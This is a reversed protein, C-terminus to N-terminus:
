GEDIAITIYLKGDDYSTRQRADVGLSLLRDVSSKVTDRFSGIASLRDGKGIRIPAEKEYYIDVLAESEAVTLGRDIIRTLLEGRVGEDEIRLLSRAHRETLGAELIIKRHEETHRLLRLKNAIYSQTVGISRALSEQTTGRMKLMGSLAAAEDFMNM